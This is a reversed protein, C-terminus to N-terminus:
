IEAPAAFEDIVIEEDKADQPEQAVFETMYKEAPLGALMAPLNLVIGDMHYPLKLEVPYTVAEGGKERTVELVMRFDQGMWTVMGRERKALKAAEADNAYIVAKYFSAYTQNEYEFTKNDIYITHGRGVIFMAGAILLLVLLTGAGYLLRRKSKM